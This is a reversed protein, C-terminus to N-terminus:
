KRSEEAVRIQVGHRDPDRLSLTPELTPDVSVFGPSVWLAGSERTAAEIRPASTTDLLTWVNAIDNAGLDFPAERGDSPSLYDLLEVGIGSPARLTTIRLRANFVGNLHEQEIGHNEGGGAISLGLTDRWFRLASGTDAVVIATHDIGQFLRADTSQWRADGKGPPFHILELFHRDPDRFYFAEIGGANPNWDPLRQPASSAFEVNAKQLREFAVRMDYVVIAIHQFWADNGRSDAPFPQGAQSRFQRLEIREGGLELTATALRAGFVGERRAIGESDEERRELLRFDLVNTYFDISRELDGVTFAVGSVRVIPPDNPAGSRVLTSLVTLCVGVALISKM